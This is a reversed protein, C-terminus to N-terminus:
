SLARLYGAATSALAAATFIARDDGKLLMLWNALYQAHDVRLEQTVGLEACLFAAGLEAVLEEFAYDKDGFRKGGDRDLRHKAGTWHILEHVLTAYYGETRSMTATGTFLGEDPMQIHDTAPRYFARDGGHEVRASTATVFLDAAALREVPGLSTQQEPLEFGDVQSANFVASARAVRRKGTDDADDPDADVEFEKYFIVLSGKEGKRVQAGREAWQNYTGWIATGYGRHAASVWLNVINIGNYAKGTLANVPLHLAGGTKRWPLEPRGPDAEIARILQDTVEAHLNRHFPKTKGM